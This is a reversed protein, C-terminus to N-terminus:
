VNTDQALMGYKSVSDSGQQTTRSKYFYVANATLSVVLALSTLWIIRLRTKASKSLLKLDLANQGVDNEQQPLVDYAGEKM